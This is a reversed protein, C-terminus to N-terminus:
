QGGTLANRFEIITGGSASSIQNCIVAKGEPWSCFAVTKLAPTEFAANMSDRNVTPQVIVKAGRSRERGLMRGFEVSAISRSAYEAALLTVTEGENTYIARAEGLSNAFTRSDGSPIVNQLEFNGIKQRGKLNEVLAGTKSGTETATTPFSGSKSTETRSSSNTQGGASGAYNKYLIIGVAGAIVAGAALLGILILVGVIWFIRRSGRGSSNVPGTPPAPQPVSSEM